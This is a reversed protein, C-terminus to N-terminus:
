RGALRGVMEKIARASGDLASAEPLFDTWDFRTRAEHDTAAPIVTFGQKEFLAVARRTHLASTVLIIKNIGMPRLIDATFQANQRTNRSLGELVMAEAPVGLASMFTRMSEAESHISVNHNAGGSLLVIPARDAHFLRAAHWVRDSAPGLDPMHGAEEPARMVGGLVVIAQAQSLAGIELPPFQAELTARLKHSVVPTSFVVLWLLAFALVVSGLRIKKFGILLLAVVGFFLTTGLPSILSILLKDLM